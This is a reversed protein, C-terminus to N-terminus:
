WWRKENATALAGDLPTLYPHWLKEWELSISGAYESRLIDMMPAAPFEGEGPAVYSYPHNESPKSVSDKVHIHVVHPSLARWTTVPDEGGRKWTHHSDWLLRSAPAAALFALNAAATFLSNHTEIMIDSQWGRENRLANWWNVRAAMMAIAAADHSGGGDFVRLDVGGLAEAWPLFAETDRQWDEDTSGKLSLSADLATVKVGSAAIHAALQDPTRFHQTFYAPLDVTGGLARLEIVDIGYRLALAIVEDLELEACGLTSFCRKM